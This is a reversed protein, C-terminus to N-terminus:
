CWPHPRQVHWVIRAQVARGGHRPDAKVARGACAGSSIPNTHGACRFAGHRGRGRMGLSDDGQGRRGGGIVGATAGWM